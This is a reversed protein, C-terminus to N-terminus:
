GETSMVFFPAHNSTFVPPDRRLIAQIAPNRRFERDLFQRVHKRDWGGPHRFQRYLTLDGSYFDETDLGAADPGYAPMNFIALNLYDIYEQHEIVYDLTKKAEKYTEAPTGFLLYVYTAIGADRLNKLAMSAETLDIGKDLAEIVSQDGSELGIKLMVCGSRKLKRCFDPDALRRTIRAFGYWPIGPPNDAIATLLAPSMANDLFHILCPSESDVIGKIDSISKDM